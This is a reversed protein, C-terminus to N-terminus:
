WMYFLPTFCLCSSVSLFRVTLEFVVVVALSATTSPVQNQKANISQPCQIMVVPERLIQQIM